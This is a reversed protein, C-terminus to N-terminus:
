AGFFFYLAIAYTLTEMTNIKEGGLNLCAQIVAALVFAIIYRITDKKM